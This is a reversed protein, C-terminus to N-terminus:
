SLPESPRAPASHGRSGGRCAVRLQGTPPSEKQEKGRQTSPGEDQDQRKAKGKGHGGNSRPLFPAQQPLQAFTSPGPGDTSPSRDGSCTGQSPGLRAYIPPQHPATTLDLHPAAAAEHTTSLPQQPSLTYHGMQQTGTGRVLLSTALRRRSVSCEAQQVTATEVLARPNRHIAQEHPDNPESLGRLLM